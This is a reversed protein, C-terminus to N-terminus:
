TRLKQVHKQYQVEVPAMWSGDTCGRVPWEWGFVGHCGGWGARFARSTGSDPWCRGPRSRSTSSGAWGTCPYRVATVFVVEDVSCAPINRPRRGLGGNTTLHSLRLGTLQSQAQPLFCRIRPHQFLWSLVKAPFRFIKFLRFTTIQNQQKFRYATIMPFTRFKMCNYAFACLHFFAIKIKFM